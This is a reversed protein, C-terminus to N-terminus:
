RVSAIWSDMIGKTCGYKEQGLTYGPKAALIQKCSCGKTDLITYSPAYVISKASGTNATFRGSYRGDYIHHNPNL